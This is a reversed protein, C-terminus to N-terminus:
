QRITKQSKANIQDLEAQVRQNATAELEIEERRSITEMEERMNIDSAPHRFNFAPISMSVRARKSTATIRGMQSRRQSVGSWVLPYTHGKRKLKQGTYSRRFAKGSLGEGKRKKYGYERAGRVTFHKPRFDRFWDEALTAWTRKRIGREARVIHRPTPGKERVTFKIPM